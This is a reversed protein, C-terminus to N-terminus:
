IDAFVEDFTKYFDGQVNNKVTLLDMPKKIVQPYNWLGMAQWPVPEHFAFSNPEKRLEAIL